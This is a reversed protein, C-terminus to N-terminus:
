LFFDVRKDSKNIIGNKSVSFITEIFFWNVNWSILWFLPNTYILKGWLCLFWESRKSAQSNSKSLNLRVGSNIKVIGDPYSSVKSCLILNKIFFPILIM